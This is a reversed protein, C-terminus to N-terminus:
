TYATCTHLLSPLVSKNITHENHVYLGENICYVYILLTSPKVTSYITYEYKYCESLM